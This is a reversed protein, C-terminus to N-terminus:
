TFFNDAFGRVDLEAWCVSDITQGVIILGSMDPSSVTLTGHAVVATEGSGPAKGGLWSVGDDWKGSLVNWYTAM